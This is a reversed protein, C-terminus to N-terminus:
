QSQAVWAKCFLLLVLLTEPVSGSPTYSAFVCCSSHQRLSEADVGASVADPRGTFTVTITVDSGAVVHV